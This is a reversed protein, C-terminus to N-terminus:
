WGIIFFAFGKKDTRCCIRSMGPPPAEAGGPPKRWFVGKFQPWM